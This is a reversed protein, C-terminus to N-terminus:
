KDRQVGILDIARKGEKNKIKLCAGNSALFVLADEHGNRAAYMLATEGNPDQLNISASYECLIKMVRVNNKEAAIMLPTRGFKDLADVNSGLRLSLETIEELIPSKCTVSM